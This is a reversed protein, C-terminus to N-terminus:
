WRGDRKEQEINFYTSVTLKDLVAKSAKLQEHMVGIQRWVQAIETEIKSSLNVHSLAQNGMISAEIM